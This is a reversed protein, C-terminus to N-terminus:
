LIQINEIDLHNIVHLLEPDKTKQYKLYSSGSLFKWAKVEMGESIPEIIFGALETKNKLYIQVNKNLYHLLIQYPDILRLATPSLTYGFLQLVQNVKDVRLTQKGQELERIFRLGVGAKESLEIQTMNLRSRSYRVFNAINGKNNAAM